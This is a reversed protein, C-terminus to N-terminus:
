FSIKITNGSELSKRQLIGTKLFFFYNPSFYLIKREDYIINYIKTDSNHHLRYMNM